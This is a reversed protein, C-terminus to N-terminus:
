TARRSRELRSQRSAPGAKNIAVPAKSTLRLVPRHRNCGVATIRGTAVTVHAVIPAGSSAATHVRIVLEDGAITMARTLVQGVNERSLAGVLRQTVTGRTDDTTYTGFVRRVRGQARSNNPAAQTAIETASTDRARKM